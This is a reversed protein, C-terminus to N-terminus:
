DGLIKTTFALDTTRPLAWTTTPYSQTTRAPSLEVTQNKRAMGFFSNQYRWVSVWYRTNPTMEFTGQSLTFKVRYAAVEASGRTGPTLVAVKTVSKAGLRAYVLRAPRGFGDVNVNSFVYFGFRAADAAGRGIMIAELEILESSRGNPAVAVFDDAALSHPPGVSSTFPTTSLFDLSGTTVTIPAGRAASGFGLLCLSAISAIATTRISMHLEKNISRTSRGGGM